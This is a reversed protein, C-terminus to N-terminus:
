SMDDGLSQSPNGSGLVNLSDGSVVHPPHVYRVGTVAFAKLLPCRSTGAAQQALHQDLVTSRGPSKWATRLKCAFLGAFRCWKVRLSCRELQLRPWTVLPGSKSALVVRALVQMIWDNKHDQQSCRM